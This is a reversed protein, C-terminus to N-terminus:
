LLAGSKKKSQIGGTYCVCIMKVNRLLKKKENGKQGNGPSYM